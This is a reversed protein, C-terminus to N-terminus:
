VLLSPPTAPLVLPPLHTNSTFTFTSINRLLPLLAHRTLAIALPTPARKNMGLRTVTLCQTKAGMSPMNAPYGLSQNSLNRLVEVVTTTTSVLQPAAFPANQRSSPAARLAHLIATTVFPHLCIPCDLVDPDISFVKKNILEDDDDDDDDDDHVSWQGFQEKLHNYLQLSRDMLDRATLCQHLM